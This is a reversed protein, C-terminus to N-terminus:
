RSSVGFRVFCISVRCSAHLSYGLGVALNLSGQSNAQDQHAASVCNHSICVSNWTQNPFLSTLYANLQICVKPLQVTVATRQSTASARVWFNCYGSIPSCPQVSARAPSQLPWSTSLLLQLCAHLCEKQGEDPMASTVQLLKQAFSAQSGPTEKAVAAASASISSPASTLKGAALSLVPGRVPSKTMGLPSVSSAPQVGSPHGLPGLAPRPGLKFEGLPPSASSNGSASPYSGELPPFLVNAAIAPLASDDLPHSSGQPFEELASGSATAPLHSSQHFQSSAKCPAHALLPCPSTSPDSLVLSPGHSAELPLRLPQPEPKHSGPSVSELPHAVPALAATSGSTSTPM